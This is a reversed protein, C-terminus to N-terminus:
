KIVVRHFISKWERKLKQLHDYVLRYCKLTLMRTIIIHASNWSKRDSFRKKWPVSPVPISISSYEAVSKNIDSDYCHCWWMLLTTLKWLLHIHKVKFLRFYNLDKIKSAFAEYNSYPRQAVIIRVCQLLWTKIQFKSVSAEYETSQWRNKLRWESCTSM